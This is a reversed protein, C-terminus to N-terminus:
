DPLVYLRSQGDAREVFALRTNPTLGNTSQTGASPWNVTLEIGASQAVGFYLAPDATSAFSGGGKQLRLLASSGSKLSASAGVPHRPSDTGILTLSIVAGIVDSSNKLFVPTGNLVSVVADVRHDHDLDGLALGRCSRPMALVPSQEAVDRFWEGDVNEFLLMRQLLPAHESHLIVHGNAVIVDEDGDADLDSFMAGWGVFSGGAAQIGSVDSVHRFFANGQNRYLAFSEREYNSIWLDPLGDHNYDGADVSMSGDPIGQDSVSSGSVASVDQFKTEDQNMYLSNPVTDNAVYIDNDGDLDLDATMVALSKGNGSIGFAETGDRFTGDGNSLWLANPLGEFIRPSCIDRTVGDRAFCEPNNTPSWDVYHAIFVDNNGDGDVDGWAASSSWLSDTLESEGTADRFTGDGLNLFLQVGGFGTALIDAFGDHDVDTAAIGHNYHGHISLGAPGSVDVFSGGRNRLTAIGLGTPRVGQFGGGLPIVADVWGDADVDILGVGGGLSELIAFQNAGDGNQYGAIDSVSSPWESFHIGSSADGANADTSSSPTSGDTAHTSTATRDPTATPASPSDDCGVLALVAGCCLLRKMLDTTTLNVLM